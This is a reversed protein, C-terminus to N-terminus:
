KKRGKAAMEAMKAKGYKKRGVAAAVANPDRAGGKAAAAAVARFRAGSGLPPKAM